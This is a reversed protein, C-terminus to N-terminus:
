TSDTDNGLVSGLFCATFMCSFGCVSIMIAPLVVIVDIDGPEEKDTVFRGDVILAQVISTKAAAAVFDRFRSFIEYRQSSTQFRAFRAEVEEITATHIGEPLFGHKNFPPIPM